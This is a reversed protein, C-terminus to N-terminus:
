LLTFGHRLSFANRPVVQDDILESLLRTRKCFNGVIQGQLRFYLAIIEVYGLAGEVAVQLVDAPYVVHVDSIVLRSFHIVDIEAIVGFHVLSNELGKVGEVGEVDAIPKRLMDVEFLASGLAGFVQVAQEMGDFVPELDGEPVVLKPFVAGRLAGDLGVGQFFVPVTPVDDGAVHFVELDFAKGEVTQRVEVDRFDFEGLRDIKIDVRVEFVCEPDDAGVSRLRLFDDEREGRKLSFVDFGQGEVVRLFHEDIVCVFEAYPEGEVHGM